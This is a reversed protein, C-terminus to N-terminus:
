LDEAEQLEDESDSTSTETDDSLHCELAIEDMQDGLQGPAYELGIEDVQCKSWSSAPKDPAVINCYSFQRPPVCHDFYKCEELHAAMFPSDSHVWQDVSSFSTSFYWRKQRVRWSWSGNDYIRKEWEFLVMGKRELVNRCVERLLKSTRSFNCLSFGDLYRAVKELIELPLSTLLDVTHEVPNATGRVENLNQCYAVPKVGFSGLERNFIVSGTQSHPLIRYRVFTCGYQSLPCRQELWGNLGGQIDSHVNKFHGSYEDRRFVQSCPISYMPLQKQFKPLTEVVVNLGLPKDLYVPLHIPPPPIENGFSCSSPKEEDQDKEVGEIEEDKSLQLRHLKIESPDSEHDRLPKEIDDSSDSEILSISEESFLDELSNSKLTDRELVDRSEVELDEGSYEGGVREKRIKNELSSLASAMAMRRSDTKLAGAQKPTASSTRLLDVKAKGKKFRRRFGERLIRQDRFALEVDLHGKVLVPNPQFFPVWSLRSKSYVPYRNWEMTCFIVSAPCRHLHSRLSERTLVAPCGYGSNICPIRCRQCLNKHDKMKCSHLQAGCGFECFIMRCGDPTNCHLKVCNECHEHRELEM